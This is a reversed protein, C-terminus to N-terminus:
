LNVAINKPKFNAGAYYPLNRYKGNKIYAYMGLDDACVTSRGGINEVSIKITHNGNASEAGVAIEIEEAPVRIIKVGYDDISDIANQVIEEQYTKTEIHSILERKLIELSRKGIHSENEVGAVKLLNEFKQKSITKLYSGFRYSDAQGCMSERFDLLVCNVNENELYIINM